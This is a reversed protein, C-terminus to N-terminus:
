RKHVSQQIVADRARFWANVANRWQPVSEKLLRMTGRYGLFKSMKDFTYNPHEYNIIIHMAAKMLENDTYKHVLNKKVSGVTHVNRTLFRARNYDAPEIMQSIIGKYVEYMM